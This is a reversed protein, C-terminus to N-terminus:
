ANFKAVRGFKLADSSGDPTLLWFVKCPPKVQPEPAYGDTLYICGDYRKFRNEKIYSFVPDFHTGGGGKLFSPKKGQYKYIRQVEADCEIIEIEAGQRWINYIESFFMSFYSEQISGSTDVAVALRQYRKIKIGPRTGFRKSIRKETHYIRTKRSSTSFLQLARKWNVQPKRKEIVQNVMRKIDSPLKGFDNSSTRDMAKAIMENLKHQAMSSYSDDKANWKSHDSHTEQNMLEKLHSASKPAQDKDNLLNSLADYYAEVTQNAELNLDPFSDLTIASKPLDWNGIFQNVVLDAAVNFLKLNSKPIRFCHKFLIHLAEHKIVAVRASVSELENMFFDKNVFLNMQGKVLGVAATPIEETINRPVGALFHAYFPEKLLLKIICRSLEEQVFSKETM